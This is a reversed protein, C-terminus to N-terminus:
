SPLLGILNKKVAIKALYFTFIGDLESLIAVAAADINTEEAAALLQM